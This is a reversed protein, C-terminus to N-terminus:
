RGAAVAAHVLASIRGAVGAVREVPLMHGADPFVTLGASPLAKAIRRSASVPTLRDRSGVLVATPVKAFAALAADREHADLTARFGAVTAPRCGAVCEATVRVAALDAGPGLLLWRLAPTLLRPNGLRRRGTWYRSGYVRKEVRRVLEARRPPLGLNAAALGGSATSVLAVGAVRDAVLEPHREALAMLTMGGMSHGAVVLPGNPAAAEIVGALDDALRELTMSGSAAAESRGHGRHDYRVVRPAEAGATLADAVPRWTRSDLTWGHALVVTVPADGPGATEVHLRVGDVTVAEM